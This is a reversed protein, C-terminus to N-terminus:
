QQPGFGKHHKNDLLSSFAPDCRQCLVPTEPIYSSPEVRIKVGCEICEYTGESTLTDARPAAVANFGFSQMRTANQEAWYRDDLTGPPYLDFTYGDRDTDHLKGLGANVLCTLFAPTVYNLNPLPTERYGDSPLTNLSDTCLRIVWKRKSMNQVEMPKTNTGEHTPQYGPCRQCRFCSGKVGHKTTTPRHFSKGDGCETCPNKAPM